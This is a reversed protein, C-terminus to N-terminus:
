TKNVNVVMANIKCVIRRIVPLSVHHNLFTRLRFTLVGIIAVQHPIRVLM